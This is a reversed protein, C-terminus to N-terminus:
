SAVKLIPIFINIHLIKKRFNICMFDCTNYGEIATIIIRCFEVCLAIFARSARSVTNAVIKIECFM